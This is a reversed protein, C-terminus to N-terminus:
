TARLVGSPPIVELGLVVFGKQVGFKGGKLIYSVRRVTVRGTFREIHEHWEALFLMDGVQFGRDDQRVEFSKAGSALPDFFELWVKLLHGAPTWEAM